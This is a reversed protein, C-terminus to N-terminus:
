DDKVLIQRQITNEKSYKKKSTITIINIGNKLDIEKNFYGEVDSLVSEGNIMIQAEKETSGEIRIMKKNTITNEQPTNIILNPPSVINKIAYGLYLFCSLVILAIIINKIIKPTALFHRAKTIQRSFIKSEDEKQKINLEKEFLKFLDKYNLGLFIAYERLFNKGYVGSPLNNLDGKELAELHKHNINLKKSADELKIDKNQRANRLQEAVTESDLFIKNSKFSTM